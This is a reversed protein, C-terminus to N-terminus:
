YNLMGVAHSCSQIPHCLDRSYFILQLFTTLPQSAKLLAPNSLVADDPLDKDFVLTLVPLSTFLVNYVMLMTSSFMSSGSLGSM